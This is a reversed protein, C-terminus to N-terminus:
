VRTDSIHHRNRLLLFAVTTTRTETEMGTFRQWMALSALIAIRVSAEPSFQSGVRFMSEM